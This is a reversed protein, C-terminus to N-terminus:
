ISWISDQHFTRSIWTGDTFDPFSVPTGGMAISQESLVTVSMWAACDYVNIPTEAKREIADFYAQLTLFDVGGHGGRTNERYEKWIPHDHKKYMADMPTWEHVTYPNGAPDIEERTPSVGQIFVANHDESWLGLTGQVHGRRSYPRPLSVSHNLTITEGNACTIVSTIVDGENFHQSLGQKVAENNFNCAKSAFSSLTLFRNGRNIDLIKAIPGLGHTPYLDGNRHCNHIGREVGRNINNDKIAPEMGNRYGGIIEELIDHEYGCECHVLEGLLGQRVLNEVLLEDRGYCCNELMMCSVGTKESARVLDWLEQISSAGGVEIAAYKQHEMAYCAIKLHSNWSTPIIVADVEPNQILEKYNTYSKAAPMKKNTLINQIKAIREPQLDCIATVTAKDQLYVLSALLTEARAGLGIIGLKVHM